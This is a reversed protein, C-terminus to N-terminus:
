LLYLPQVYQFFVIGSLAKLDPSNFCFINKFNLRTGLTKERAQSHPPFLRTKERGAGLDPFLGQSRPQKFNNKRIGSLPYM